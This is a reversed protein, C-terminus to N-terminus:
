MLFRVKIEIMQSKKKITLRIKIGLSQKNKYIICIHIKMKLTEACNPTVNTITCIM